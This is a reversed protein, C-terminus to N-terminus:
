ENRSAIEPTQTLAEHLRDVMEAIRQSAATIAKMANTFQGQAANMVRVHEDHTDALAHYITAMERFYGLMEESQQTQVEMQDAIRNSTRTANRADNATWLAIRFAESPSVGEIGIGRFIQADRGKLTVDLHVRLESGPDGSWWDPRSAAKKRSPTKDRKSETM